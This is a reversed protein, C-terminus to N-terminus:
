QFCAYFQVFSRVFHGFITQQPQIPPLPTLPPPFPPPVHSHPFLAMTTPPISAGPWPDHTVYSSGNGDRCRAAMYFRTCECCNIELRYVSTHSSGPIPASAMYTGMRVVEGAPAPRCPHLSNVPFGCYHVRQVSRSSRVSSTFRRCCFVAANYAVTNTLTLKLLGFCISFIETNVM